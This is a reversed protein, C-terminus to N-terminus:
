VVNLAVCECVQVCIRMTKGTGSYGELAKQSSRRVFVAWLGRKKRRGGGTCCSFDHFKIRELKRLKNSLMVGFGPIHIALERRRSSRSKGGGGWSEGRNAITPM